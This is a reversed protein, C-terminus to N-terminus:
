LFVDLGQNLKAQLQTYKIIRDASVVEPVPQSFIGVRNSPPPDAKVNSPKGSSRPLDFSLTVFNLDNEEQLTVAYVQTGPDTDFFVQEASMFDGVFLNM